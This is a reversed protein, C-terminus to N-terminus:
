FVAKLGFQVHRPSGASLIQGFTPSGLFNDPQDYNTRNFLNFFESRFQVKVRDALPINKILSFSVTALGPGDLINRGANGFTGFAPMTFAATNFWQAATQNAVSASGTVNPRDNAGFGLVSRGTNSNDVTSLLAVTFPHGSQMTVLGTTAWNGFVARVWGKDMLKNSDRACPFSYTYAITARHRVDFGSRARELRVSNSDQPFNPDGSSAFFGSADDISKSWTYTGLLMLGSKYNQQVRMQLAHYTSNGSSELGTIDDFQPNPRLNPFAVSPAPQNTDRGNLLRTGKTGVYGIEFVRGTGIERQINLNWHQVYPTRLDRQITLASPPTAFPFPNSLSLPPLGPFLFALHFNFYPPSFYLAEGPALPSQEFYMGYGARLVTRMRADLTWAIGLRPGFNNKDAEYGARPIGGTGVPVLSGTAPNYLSARDQPDVPPKSYEYRLGATLTFRPHLRWSDQAFFHWSKTRLAQRNDSVAGGTVTPVGILLDALPNGTVAGLFSLFGRSEVDRFANQQLDRFDFGVKLMHKNHIWSMHDLVQFTNSIGRQPNVREDGLTSLGTINILSLGFDRSKSSLDPLGVAQNLSTGANEQTVAIAVRSYSFRFENVLDPRFTHMDSLMLNQARRPVNNGFGPVLANGTSAPFPEFFDRDSFSYRATFDNKQGFRQDLRVDFHHDNDRQVPSSVFNAGPTARNPQPFLAAIAAGVPHQLFAPLIPVPGFGPIVPTPFISSSFDGSREAQTPVNTVRTIGERQIRGEYDAFFFTRDKRIPAGLSFGFQNRQYKPAPENSPAFHNRADLAANRFFEYATGHWQDTGSQTVVNVQGGSNRGFTADYNHTTVEFERIADVPPTVGVGNLKPDGNYVGDLSFYNADDRGGEVNLALDGRVSAASGQAAPAVGAVLLSLEYFNRGDLPLSSIIQGEIVAGTQANEANLLSSQTMGEDIVDAHESISLKLSLSVEQDVLVLLRQKYEKFGDRSVRLDYTGPSVSQIVFSGEGNSECTQNQNTAINTLKVKAGPVMAGSPDEITGRVSGRVTQAASIQTFVILSVFVAFVRFRM